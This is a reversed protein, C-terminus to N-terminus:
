GLPATYEKFRRCESLNDFYDGVKYPVRPSMVMSMLVGVIPGDQAV